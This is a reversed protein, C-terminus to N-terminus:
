LKFYSKELKRKLAKANNSEREYYAKCDEHRTNNALNDMDESRKKLLYNILDYEDYNMEITVKM